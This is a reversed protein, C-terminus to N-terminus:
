HMANKRWLIPEIPNELAWLGLHQAKANAQLARLAKNSSYRYAWGNGNKIQYTTVDTSQCSVYGVTRGYKDKTKRNVTATKGLCLGSLANRAEIAFPQEGWNFAKLEPTDVKALRIKEGFGLENTVTLTDGDHTDTVLGDFAWANTSFLLALIFLKKM